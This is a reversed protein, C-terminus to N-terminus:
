SAARLARPACLWPSCPTPKTVSMTEGGRLIEQEMLLYTGYANIRNAQEFAPLRPLAVLRDQAYADDFPELDRAAEGMAERLILSITAPSRCPRARRRAVGPRPGPRRRDSAARDDQGDGELWGASDANGVFPVRGAFILDGAFLLRDEVVYMMLDEPSHAGDRISSAFTLGGM